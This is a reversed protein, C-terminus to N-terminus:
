GPPPRGANGDPDRRYRDALRQPSVGLYYGLITTQNIWTTRWPGIARWRRGSTVAPAPVVDIRGRRRLRRVLDFDEMIPLDAFGGLDHFTRAKLFLAQDGYPMQLYRARWNAVRQIVALSGQARRIGLRFAGAVVGPQALSLRVHDEFRPPLLTDAHLFLLVGGTAVAAGANLQRARGAVGSLVTAPRRRAIGASGDSSEADVVVVETDAAADLRELTEELYAAENLTPIVVSIRSPDAGAQRCKICYWAALDEPRDVDDLPDLLTTSLGLRRATDLTEEFVRSGGWPIERFLDPAHRRLGVLYYGGDSAPGLVLDNQGLRHFATRVLDDSVGPCDSGVAVTRGAGRGFASRFARDLRCGLDGDGQPRYTFDGGFCDLMQHADGGEFLVEVSTEGPRSLERAWRLTHRTMQRQVLAAGEPGLAPILRTKTKGSEPYRTFILLRQDM